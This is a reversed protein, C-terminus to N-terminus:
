RPSWHRRPVVSTRLTEALRRRPKEDEDPVAQERERRLEEMRAGIAAFDDAARTGAMMEEGNHAPVRLAGKIRNDANTEVFAV